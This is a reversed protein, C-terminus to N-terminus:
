GEDGFSNLSSVVSGITPFPDAGFEDFDMILSVIGAVAPRKHNFLSLTVNFILSILSIWLVQYDMPVIAFMMWYSPIYLAWIRLLMQFHEAEMRHVSNLLGDGSLLGHLIYFYPVYIFPNLIAQSATVKAVVSKMDKRPLWKELFSLWTWLVTGAWVGSVLGLCATRKLDFGTWKGIHFIREIAQAIADGGCALVSSVAWSTVRPRYVMYWRYEVVLAQLPSLRDRELKAAFRNHAHQKYADDM